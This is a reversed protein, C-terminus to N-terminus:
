QFRNLQAGRGLLVRCGIRLAHTGAFHQVLRQSIHSSLFDETHSLEIASAGIYRPRVASSPPLPLGRAGPRTRFATRRGADLKGSACWDGICARLREHASGRQVPSEPQGVESSIGAFPPRNALSASASTQV